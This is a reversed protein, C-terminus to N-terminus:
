GNSGIAYRSFHWIPASVTKAVPDWDAGPVETWRGTKEDQEFLTLGSVKWEYQAGSYSLTLTPAKLFQLGSPQFKLDVMVRGMIHVRMSIQVDQAVAGPPITLRTFGIRQNGATLVGGADPTVTTSNVLLAAHSAGRRSRTLIVVNADEEASGAPKALQARTDEGTSQLPLVSTDSCGALLWTFIGAAGLLAPVARRKSIFV